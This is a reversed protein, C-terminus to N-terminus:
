GSQKGERWFPLLQERRWETLLLLQFRRKTTLTCKGLVQKPASPSTPLLHSSMRPKELLWFSHFHGQKQEKIVYFPLFSFLLFCFAWFRSVRRKANVRCTSTRRSTVPTAVATIDCGWLSRRTRTVGGGSEPAPGFPPRAAPVEARGRDARMTPARHVRALPHRAREAGFGARPSARCSRSPSSPAAAGGAGTGHAHARRRAYLCPPARASGSSFVLLGACSFRYSVRARERPRAM